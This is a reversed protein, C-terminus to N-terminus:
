KSMPTSYLATEFGIGFVNAKREPREFHPSIAQAPSGLNETYEYEYYIFLQGKGLPQRYDLQLELKTEPFHFANTDNLLLVSYIIGHREYDFTVKLSREPSLWALYIMMDDSDSGSHAAYRRGDNTSYYYENKDYWDPTERHPYFPSRSIDAYEFGFALEPHNFLGYKRFGIIGAASHDPHARFDYWDWRHDNWGYELFLKLNVSPFLLSIFGSATQDDREYVDIPDELGSEEFLTEKFFAQFPVLAADQWSIESDNIGGSLFTRIAGITITPDNYYTFSGLVATFYPKTINRGVEAFIYRLNVGFKKYRKEQLTGLVLHPFGSTNTTMNLTNHISPGWWMGANSIGGGWGEYHLYLQSERLRLENVPATGRAPGDNLVNFEDVIETNDISHDRVVHHSVFARNECYQYYPEISFFFFQHSLDVHLATFFTSGKGVWLEGTNELNPVNDNYFYDTRGFINVDIGEYDTDLMIPRIDLSPSYPPKDSALRERNMLFRPNAPVYIHNPATFSFQFAFVLLLLISGTRHGFKQKDMFLTSYKRKLKLKLRLQQM